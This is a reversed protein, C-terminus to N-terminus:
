VPLLSSLNPCLQHVTLLVTPLQTTRLMAPAGNQSQASPLFPFAIIPLLAQLVQQQLQALKGDGDSPPAPALVVLPSKCTFPHRTTLVLFMSSAASTLPPQSGSLGSWPCCKGSLALIVCKALGERTTANLPRYKSYTMPLWRFAVLPFPSLIHKDTNIDLAASTIWISVEGSFAGRTRQLMLICVKSGTLSRSGAGSAIQLPIRNIYSLAKHERFDRACEFVHSLM